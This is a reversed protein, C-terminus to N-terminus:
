WYYVKPQRHVLQQSPHKKLPHRLLLTRQTLLNPSTFNSLIASCTVSLTRFMTLSVARLTHRQLWKTWISCRTTQAPRNVVSRTLDPVLYIGAGLVSKSIKESM